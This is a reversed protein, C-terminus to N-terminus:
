RRREWWERFSERALPRLERTRTWGALPGPLRGILGNRVLPRQAIRGAREALGLRRPGGFLHELLAM